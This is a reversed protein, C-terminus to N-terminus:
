SQLQRLHRLFLVREKFSQLERLTLTIGIIESALFLPNRWTKCILAFHNREADSDASQRKPVRNFHQM